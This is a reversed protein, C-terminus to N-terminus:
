ERVSMFEVALDPHNPDDYVGVSNLITNPVDKVSPPNRKAEREMRSGKKITSQTM